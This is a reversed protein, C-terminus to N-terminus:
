RHSNAVARVSDLRNLRDGRSSCSSKALRLQAGALGVRSARDCFHSLSNVLRRWSLRRCLAAMEMRESRVLAASFAIMLVLWLGDTLNVWSLVWVPPFAAVLVAIGFAKLPHSVYRTLLFTLALILAVGSLASAFSVLGSCMSATLWSTIAISIPYLPNANHYPMPLHDPQLPVLWLADLVFGKGALLNRAVITLYSSDHMMGIAHQPDAPLTLVRFITYASLVLAIM